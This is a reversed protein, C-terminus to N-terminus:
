AALPVQVIRKENTLLNVEMAASEPDEPKFFLHYWRGRYKAKLEFRAWLNEAGKPARVVLYFYRIGQLKEVDTEALEWHGGRQGKGFYATIKPILQSFEVGTEFTGEVGPKLGPILVLELSSTLGMKSTKKITDTVSRPYMTCIHSQRNKEDPEMAISYEASQLTTKKNDTHLSCCLEVLYFDYRDMDARVFPDLTKKEEENLLVALNGTRPPLITVVSVEEKAPVREPIEGMEGMMAVHPGKGVPALHAAALIEKETIDTSHREFAQQM